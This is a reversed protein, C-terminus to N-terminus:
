NFLRRASALGFAKPCQAAPSAALSFQVPHQRLFAEADSGEADLNVELVALGRGGCMLACAFLGYQIVGRRM